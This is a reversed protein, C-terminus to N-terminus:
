CRKIEKLVDDYTDKDDDDFQLVDDLMKDVDFEYILELLIVYHGPCYEVTRTGHITNGNSDTYSYPEIYSCCNGGHPCPVPTEGYNTFQWFGLSTYFSDVYDDNLEEFNEMNNKVNNTPIAALTEDYLQGYPVQTGTSEETWEFGEFIPGRQMGRESLEGASYYYDFNPDPQSAYPPPTLSDPNMFDPSQPNYYHNNFYNDPDNQYEIYADYASQQQEYEAYKEPDIVGTNEHESATGLISNIEDNIKKVAGDMIEHYHNVVDRENMSEQTYVTNGTEDEGKISIYFFPFLALVVVILLLSVVVVVAAFSGGGVLMLVTGSSKISAARKMSEIANKIASKTRQLVNGKGDIGHESKYLDVKMNRQMKEKKMQQARKEVKEQKERLREKQAEIKRNHQNQIAQHVTKEVKKEVIYKPLATVSNVTTEGVSDSAAVDATIKASLEVAAKSINIAKSKNALKEAARTTAHIIPIAAMEAVAVGTNDNNLANDVESKLQVASQAKDFLTNDKKELLKEKLALNYSKKYLKGIDKDRDPNIEKKGTQANKKMRKLYFDAKEKYSVAREHASNSQSYISDKKVSHDLIQEWTVNPPIAAKEYPNMNDKYSSREDQSFLSDDKLPASMDDPPTYTARSLEINTQLKQTFEAAKKSKAYKDKAESRTNTENEGSKDSNENTINKMPFSSTSVEENGNKVAESASIKSKAKEKQKIESNKTESAKSIDTNKKNAQRLYQGRIVQYKTGKRREEPLRIVAKERREALSSPKVTGQRVAPFRTTRTKNDKNSNNRM